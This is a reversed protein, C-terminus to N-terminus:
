GIGICSLCIKIAKNLVFKPEGIIIGIILSLILIGLLFFKIKKM